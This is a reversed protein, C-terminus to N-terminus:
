PSEDIVSLFTINKVNACISPSFYKIYYYIVGIIQPILM